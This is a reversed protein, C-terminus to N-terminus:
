TEKTEEVELFSRLSFFTDKIFWYMRITIPLVPSPTVEVNM